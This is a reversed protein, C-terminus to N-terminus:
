LREIAIDKDQQVLDNGNLERAINYKPETDRRVYPNNRFSENLETNTRALDATKPNAVTRRERVPSRSPRYGPM